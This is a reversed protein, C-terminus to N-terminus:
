DILHHVVRGREARSPKATGIDMCRYIQMSDVGIIECGFEEALRLALETKGIATPGALFILPAAFLDRDTSQSLTM